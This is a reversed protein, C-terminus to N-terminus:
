PTLAWRQLCMSGQVRIVVRDVGNYCAALMLPNIYLHQSQGMSHSLFCLFCCVSMSGTDVVRGEM